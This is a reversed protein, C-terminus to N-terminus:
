LPQPPCSETSPRCGDFLCCLVQGDMSVELYVPAKLHPMVPQECLMETSGAYVGPVAVATGDAGAFRCTLYESHVFGYGLVQPASPQLARVHGSPASSPRPPGCVFSSPVRRDGSTVTQWCPLSSNLPVVSVYGCRQGSLQCISNPCILRKPSFVPVCSNMRHLNQAQFHTILTNGLCVTM